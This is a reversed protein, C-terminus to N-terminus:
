RLVWPVIKIARRMVPLPTQIFIAAITGVIVQGSFSGDAAFTAQLAPTPNGPVDPHPVAFSFRGNAM